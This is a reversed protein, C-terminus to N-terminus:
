VGALHVLQRVFLRYSIYLKQQWKIIKFHLYLAIMSVVTLM